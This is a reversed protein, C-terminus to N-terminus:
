QRVVEAVERGCLLCALSTAVILAGNCASCREPVGPWWPRRGPRQVLDSLRLPEPLAAMPIVSGDSQRPLGRPPNIRQVPPAGVLRYGRVSKEVWGEKVARTLYASTRSRSKGLHDTIEFLRWWRGDSLLTHLPTLDAPQNQRAGGALSV